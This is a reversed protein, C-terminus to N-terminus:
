MDKIMNQANALDQAIEAQGIERIMATEAFQNMAASYSLKSTIEAPTNPMEGDVLRRMVEVAIERAAKMRDGGKGLM